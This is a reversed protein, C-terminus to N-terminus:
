AVACGAAGSLELDSPGQWVRGSVRRGQALRVAVDLGQVPGKPQRSRGLRAWGLLPYSFM